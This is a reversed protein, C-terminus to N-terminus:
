QQGGLAVAQDARFGYTVGRGADGAGLEDDEGVGGVLDQALGVGV